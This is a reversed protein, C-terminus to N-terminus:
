THIELFRKRDSEDRHFLFRPFCLEEAITKLQEVQRPDHEILAFSNSNMRARCLLLFPRILDLGLPGSFLASHPEHNIVDPMLQDSCPIYPLNAIIASPGSLEADLVPELLSGSRFILTSSLNHFDANARAVNLAQESNDIAIFRQVEYGARRCELATSIIIAGSGTGVDIVNETQSEKIREIARKVLWESEPRPILVAPSVHFSYSYFEKLGTIYAVPERLARRCLIASLRLAADSDLTIDSTYLQYRELQCANMLLVDADLAAEDAAFGAEILFKRAEARVVKLESGPKLEFTVKM